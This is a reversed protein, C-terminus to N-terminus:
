GYEFGALAFVLSTDTGVPAAAGTVPRSMRLLRRVTTFGFEDALASAAQNTPLVDWFAPENPHAALFAELMTRAGAATESVCPGFFAARSGARGMGFGGSTAAAGEQALDSLLASRDAGFAKRDLAFLAPDDRWPAAGATPVPKVRSAERLRREVACEEVFGLKAYLPAGMDTADLKAWRVCRRECYALAEEMLCRALGRGRFEPLTLVMGIWALDEGYCVASASAALTGDIEIGFCGEPELRLLRRWDAETQNWGAAEKLRMLGPLDGLTLLRSNTHIM